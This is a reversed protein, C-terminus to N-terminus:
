KKDLVVTGEQETTHISGNALELLSTNIFFGAQETVVTIRYTVKEGPQISVTSFVIHDNQVNYKTDDKNLTAKQLKMGKPLINRLVVNECPKQGENRVEIVYVTRGGVKFVPDETDYSAIHLAWHERTESVTTMEEVKIPKPLEHCSIVATNKMTGLETSKVRVYFTVKEGPALSAIPSFVVCGEVFEHKHEGKIGVFASNKPIYNELVVQTCIATGENRVTIIYLTTKGVQICEDTDYSSVHLAPSNALIGCLLISSMLFIRIM